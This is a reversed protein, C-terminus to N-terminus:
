LGAQWGKKEFFPMEPKKPPFILQSKGLGLGGRVGLKLEPLFSWGRLGMVGFGLDLIL